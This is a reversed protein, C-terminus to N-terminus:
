QEQQTLSHILVETVLTKMNDNGPQKDIFDWLHLRQNLNPKYGNSYEFFKKAFNYAIKQQGSLLIKKLGFIDDFTHQDIEGSADVKAGTQFYGKLRYQFTGSHPQKVKYQNRWEGTADFSELAFGYPDISKHCAYCSKKSKHQDIQERLTKAEKGHEPELAPVSEPPPSLPTGIINKSIWAGRLIPSTDFGDTTVKLVSAMTLLGGRPVDAPFTVKRLHQGTIGDIGYHQALRQNLFSFDSDILKGAPLNSTILHHLYTRTEIPLYHNLLDDYEPYLKLSPTVKNLSRLNLWQDSLSRIMRQSRDDALMRHIEARLTDGTLQDSKALQLLKQDPVSLWLARALDAAVAYSPNAHEGPAMLFRHSCIVAKMGVKAAQVFDGQEKLSNLSISLYPALEEDSLQSALAKEAFRKIVAKMAEPSSANVVVKAKQSENVNKIMVDLKGISALSKGDLAVADTVLFKIFRKSTKNPFVIPQENALRVDLGGQMIKKSWSKGDDSFYIEYAKVLGNGNGGREDNSWTAFSLGHIEAGNPNEFIVFHPPKALTPTYRTHWFTKHSGDQMKEKEMGKQFSSVTVKGGIKQLNTQFSTDENSERSAAKVPLGTFIMGYSKPPWQEHVPGRAKLQKIYGGQKPNRQRFNNKSYNHVSVSEGPELYARVTYSKVEKDALSIVGVLRQPQPRDDAYYYKGAHVQLSIDEKFDAVKAADFTLEYWGAVPPDFGDYFFSYSNGNNARTWSFLTGEKYPRHYINYTEHSDRVKSTVWTKEAAFGDTPFAHDLMEDAVSFYSALMERSLQINRNSDFDNTGRDEPIKGALDLNVGLLDNLSHIFEHRSIRRFSKPADQQNGKLKRKSLWELITRKEQADPQEEKAPPMKGNLVNEFMLAGDGQGDELFEELDFGGKESGDGHCDFCYHELVEAAQQERVFAPNGFAISGSAVLYGAAMMMKSMMMIRIKMVVMNVGM